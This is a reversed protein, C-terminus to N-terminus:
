AAEKIKYGLNACAREAAEQPEATRWWGTSGKVISWGKEVWGYVEPVSTGTMTWKFYFDDELAIEGSNNSKNDTM